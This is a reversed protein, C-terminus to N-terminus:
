TKVCIKWSGEERLEKRHLALFQLEYRSPVIIQANFPETFNRDLTGEIRSKGGKEGRSLIRRRRYDKATRHHRLKGRTNSNAASSPMRMRYMKTQGPSRSVVPILFFHM